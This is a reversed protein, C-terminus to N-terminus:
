SEIVHAAVHVLPTLVPIFIVASRSLGVGGASGSAALTNIAAAIPIKILPKAPDREAIAHNRGIVAM